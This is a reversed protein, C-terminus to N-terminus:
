DSHADIWRKAAKCEPRKCWQLNCPLPHGGLRIKGAAAAKRGLAARAAAEALTLM